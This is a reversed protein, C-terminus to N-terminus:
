CNASHACALKFCLQPADPLSCTIRPHGFWSSMSTNLWLFCSRNILSGNWPQEASEFGGFCVIVKLSFPENNFIRRLKMTAFQVASLLFSYSHGLIPKPSIHLVGSNFKQLRQLFQVLGQRARESDCSHPTTCVTAVLVFCTFIWCQGAAFRPCPNPNIDWSTGVIRSQKWMVLVAMDTPSSIGGTINPSTSFNPCKGVGRLPWSRSQAM